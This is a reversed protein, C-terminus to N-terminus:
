LHKKHFTALPLWRSGVPALTPWRTFDVPHRLRWTCLSIWGSGTACCVKCGHSCCHSLFCFTFLSQCRPLCKQLTLSLGLADRQFKTIFDKPSQLARNESNAPFYALALRHFERTFLLVLEPGLNTFASLSAFSFPVFFIELFKKSRM